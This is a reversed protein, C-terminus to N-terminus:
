GYLSIKIHIRFRAALHGGPGLESEVAEVRGEFSGTLCGPQANKRQERFGLEGDGIEGGDKPLRLRANRTVQPQHRLGTQDIAEPLPRPREEAQALACGGALKGAVEYGPEIRSVGRQRAVALPEGRHTRLARGGGLAVKAAMGGFPIADATKMHGIFGHLFGDDCRKFGRTSVFWIMRPTSAYWVCIMLRLECPM